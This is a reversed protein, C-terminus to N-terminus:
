PAIIASKQNGYGCLYSAKGAFACPLQIYGSFFSCSIIRSSFHILGKMLSMVAVAAMISVPKTIFQINWLAYLRIEPLPM